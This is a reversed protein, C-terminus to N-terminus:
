RAHNVEAGIGAREGVALIKKTIELRVRIDIREDETVEKLVGLLEEFVDLDTLSINLTLRKKEM